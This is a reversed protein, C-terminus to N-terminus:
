NSLWPDDAVLKTLKAYGDEAAGAEGRLGDRMRTLSVALGLHVEKYATPVVLSMVANLADEVAVLKKVDTDAAAYASLFPAIVAHAQTRYQDDTVSPQAPAPAPPAVRALTFFMLGGLALTLVAIALPYFSRRQHFMM